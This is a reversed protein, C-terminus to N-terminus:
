SADPDGGLFSRAADADPLDLTERCEPCTFDTYEIYGGSDSDFGGEASFTGDEVTTSVARLHDIDKHCKPCTAM